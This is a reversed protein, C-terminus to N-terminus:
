RQFAAGVVRFLLSLVILPSIIAFAKGKSTRFAASFVLVMMVIWWIEFVSFYGLLAVAYKNSGEPMFIDFGLAPRLEAMTSVEGKAKLIVFSAIGGLLQILSCGALLNFLWLFKANVSLASCGAFLILASVAYIVAIWVPMLFAIIRQIMMGIEMGRQYQEPPTNAPPPTVELVHQIMPLTLYYTVLSIVGVVILPGLWFWKRFVYKAAGTPDVLFNGMGALDNGFSEPQEAPLEPVMTAM